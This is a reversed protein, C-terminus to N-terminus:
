KPASEALRARFKQLDRELDARVGAEGAVKPAPNKALAKEATTIADEVDGNDFYADALTSLFVLGPKPSAAVARRSYVLSVPPNRLEPVGIERLFTAYHNMDDPTAEPSDAFAKFINLGEAGTKLAEGSRGDRNLLPALRILAVALTTRARADVPDVRIMERVTAIAKELTAIAKRAEGLAMETDGLVTYVGALNRAYANNEPQLLHLRDLEAAALELQTMAEGPRNDLRLANGYQAYAEALALRLALEDPSDALLTQNIRVANRCNEIAGRHDGESLLFNCLRGTARHIGSQVSNSRDGSNSLPVLIKLGAEYYAIVKGTDGSTFWGDAAQIYSNGLDRKFSYDRPHRAALDKRITLAKEYTDTARRYQGPNSGYVSGQIAALREYAGAIEQQLSDDGTRDRALKDLYELGRSVVLKRAEIAGSVNQIAGDFEFLVATALGRVDDFRSDAEKRRRLAEAASMEARIREANERVELDQAIREQETARAAVAEAHIRERAEISRERRAISAQSATTIIGACLAAAITLGSAAAVRHRWVFKRLQYAVNGRAAEVPLGSLYRGIDDSFSQASPYRLEAEKRLSKMVIADLDGRLSADGSAASPTAPTDLCVRSVIEDLGLSAFQYPRQKALLEYLIVGLSYVDSATTLREGRVQEPSAFEPTMPFQGTASLTASRADDEKLLKAIGFDLLHAVGDASVLINGPKLDRHVILHAHAFQVAACVQRFLQLRRAVPLSNASCFENLPVGEVYEMVLYPVGDETVDGDLLRSINPHELAALFQMERRFREQTRDSLNHRAVLKIAVRKEYVHDVLSALYVVGMGGRGIEREVVYSGIRTGPRVSEAGALVKLAWLQGLAPRELEDAIQDYRPLLEEIARRLDPENGCYADLFSSREDKNKALARLLGEQVGKEM